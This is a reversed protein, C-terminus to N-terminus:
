RAAQLALKLKDLQDRIMLDTPAEAAALARYEESEQWKKQVYAAHALNLFALARDNARYLGLDLGRLINRKGEDMFKYHLQLLGRTFYYYARNRRILLKPWATRNILKEAVKPKGRQLLRFATWVDGFLLHIVLLIAASAYLMWAAPLGRSSHVAVGLGLFVAMLFFRYRNIWLM